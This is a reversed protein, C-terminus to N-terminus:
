FLSQYRNESGTDCFYDDEMFSPIHARVRDVLDNRICPCSVAEGSILVEDRASALTWIHERPQGHTLSVGDVYNSDISGGNFADTSGFQYAIVKGCVSM